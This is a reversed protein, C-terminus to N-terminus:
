FLAMLHEVGHLCHARPYHVMLVEGAKQANSAGDFFLVDTTDKLLALSAPEDSGEVLEEMHDKFLEAIFRADKKGGEVRQQTCDHIRVVVLPIGGAAGM